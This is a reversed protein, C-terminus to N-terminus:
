TELEVNFVNEHFSSLSLNHLTSVFSPQQTLKNYIDTFVANLYYLKFNRDSFGSIMEILKVSAQEIKFLSKLNLRV